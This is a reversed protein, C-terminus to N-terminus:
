TQSRRPEFRPSELGSGQPQPLLDALEPSDVRRELVWYAVAAFAAVAGMMALAQRVSTAEALAGLPLASLGFAAFALQMISQVRGQMEDSASTLAITNSLSQYGTTAAGIFMTVVFALAYTPALSLMMVTLGFAVGSGIMVPKAKPGDAMAALKLSVAVAGLASASSMVGVWFENERGFVDKVLPTIFTIYNFGFMIIVFSALVLRRLKRDRGVYRVGDAIEVFPNRPNANAAPKDPLRALNWLSVASVMALMVYTWGIGVFPVGALAGALFPGFVRTGNMSLLGLTIANGLQERGVLEASMAMRAPGLVGFATGQLVGAVLLMWYREVGILVALGMGAAAVFIAGQSLLLLRKKPYRDAAAGGLPTAILMTMGFVFFVFGLARESGTLDWALIARLVMQGQVSLFSFLGGWWLVRYAPIELSKLAESRTSKPSSKSM